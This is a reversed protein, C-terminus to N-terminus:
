LVPFPQLLIIKNWASASWDWLKMKKIKWNWVEIWCCRVINVQGPEIQTPINLHLHGLSDVM